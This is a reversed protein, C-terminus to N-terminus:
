TTEEKLKDELLAAYQEIWRMYDSAYKSSQFARSLREKQEAIDTETYGPSLYLASEARFIDLDRKSLSPVRERMARESAAKLMQNMMSRFMSLDGPEYWEVRSDSIRKYACRVSSKITTKFEMHPYEFVLNLEVDCVVDQKEARPKIPYLGVQKIDTCDFIDPIGVLNGEKDLRDCLILYGDMEDIHLKGYSATPQIKKNARLKEMYSIISNLEGVTYGRLMTQIAKPFKLTCNGCISGGDIKHGSIMSVSNGCLACQAM